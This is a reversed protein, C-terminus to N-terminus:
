PADFSRSNELPHESPDDELMDADFTAGIPTPARVTFESREDVPVPGRRTIRWAAFAGIGGCPMAMSLFFGKPGLQEMFLATFLPGVVAGVGGVLLLTANAGVMQDSSLHDNTHAACLSYLPLCFGGFLSALLFLSWSSEVGTFAAIVACLAALLSCGIIILRRDVRDSMKGVPWQFLVGSFILTGMFLSVERVSLGIETAFVAGMGFIMAYCSNILLSGVFGLPVLAYLQKIKVAEPAHFSPAKTATVLIPIVALSVLISILTFLEYSTPDGLNLLFQGGGIGFFVVLMYFSLLSGRTENTAEANLWSEAVLWIGIISFGTVFRMATWVWPNIYVAHVLIATSAMSALAGFTRIHGVRNIIAPVRLSGVFFGIYYGSMIMGTIATDFNELAARVGLLSGQMGVGLGILGLGLFLPWCGLVAIFM